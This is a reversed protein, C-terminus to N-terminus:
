LSLWRIDFDVIKDVLFEALSDRISNIIDCFVFPEDGYPYIVVGCLECDLRDTTPPVADPALRIRSGCAEVDGGIATPTIGAAIPEPLLFKLFESVLCVKRNADRVIRRASALPIFDLMAHETMRCRFFPQLYQAFEVRALIFFTDHHRLLLELSQRKAALLKM